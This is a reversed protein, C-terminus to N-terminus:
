DLWADKVFFGALHLAAERLEEESAGDIMMENLQADMDYVADSHAPLAPVRYGAVECVASHLLIAANHKNYEM